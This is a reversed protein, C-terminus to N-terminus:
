RSRGSGLEKAIMATVEDFTDMAKQRAINPHNRLWMRWSGEGTEPDSRFRFWTVAKGEERERQTKLHEPVIQSRIIDLVGDSPKDGRQGSGFKIQMENGRQDHNLSVAYGGPYKVTKINRPFTNVDTAPQEQREWREGDESWIRRILRLKREVTHEVCGLRAAIEANTYGEMKGLAVARLSEDGLRDFLYRCQDTMQATFEPTPAAGLLAADDVGELESLRLVRGGGRSRCGEQRVLNIVKRLTLVFLLQWLGNRDRLQPFRGGMAGRFFSDFASLAVDEEDAMRVPTKRLRARALSVMRRFYIEWLQRAADRNGEKLMGILRTV